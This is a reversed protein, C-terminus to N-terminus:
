RNKRRIVSHHLPCKKFKQLLKDLSFTSAFHCVQAPQSSTHESNMQYRGSIKIAIPQDPSGHRIDATVTDQLLNTGIILDIKGPLDFQPDM